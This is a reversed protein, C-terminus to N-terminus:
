SLSRSGVPWLTNWEYESNSNDDDNDKSDDYIDDKGIVVNIDDTILSHHFHHHHRNDYDHSVSSRAGSFINTASLRPTGIM